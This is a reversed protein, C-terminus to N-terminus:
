VVANNQLYKQFELSEFCHTLRCTSSPNEMEVAIYIVALVEDNVMLVVTVVCLLVCLEINALCASM